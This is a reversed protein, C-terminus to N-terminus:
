SACCCCFLGLFVCNRCVAAACKEAGGAASYASSDEAKGEEGGAEKCWEASGPASSGWLGANFSAPATCLAMSVLSCAMLPLGAGESAVLALIGVIYLSRMMDLCCASRAPLM